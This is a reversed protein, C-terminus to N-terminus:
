FLADIVDRGSAKVVVKLRKPYCEIRIHSGTVKIAMDDAEKQLKKYMSNMAETSDFKMTFKVGNIHKIIKKMKM